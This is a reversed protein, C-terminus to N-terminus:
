LTLSIALRVDYLVMIPYETEAKREDRRPDPVQMFSGSDAAATGWSNHFLTELFLAM